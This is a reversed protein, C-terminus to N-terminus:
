FGVEELIYFLAGAIVLVLLAYLVGTEIRFYISSVVSGVLLGPMPALVDEVRCM